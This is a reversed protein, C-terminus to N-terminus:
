HQKLEIESKNKMKLRNKAIKCATSNSDIGVWQRDLGAAARLTTGSGCFPDLVINGPNSSTEIIRELLKLPKQTPYGLSEKKSVQVSKIDDWVDQLQIGKTEDLYRKLVPVRGPKTQIIRGEKFLKVMKEKNYRWYRTVGLFTFQPNGKTAGGPGSLDGHAYFRRTESEYHRYAKKVYDDSYKQYIPNWTPKESKSYYFISDHIRGFINSGQKADNHTNHRKWIIENRFNEYGFVDDLIIKLYHSAHWDCHVYISGTKRLVRKSEEIISKMFDLYENLGGEWKDNFSHITGDTTKGQHDRKSYFPPDMYILDVSNPLLKKMQVQSDGLIVKNLTLQNQKEIKRFLVKVLDKVM